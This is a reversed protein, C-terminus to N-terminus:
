KESLSEHRVQHLFWEGVDASAESLMAFVPKAARLAISLAYVGLWVSWLEVAQAPERWDVRPSAALDVTRYNMALLGTYLVVGALLSLELLGNFVNFLTLTM